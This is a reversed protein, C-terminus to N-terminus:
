AAGEGGRKRKFRASGKRARIRPRLRATQLLLSTGARDAAAEEGLLEAAALVHMVTYLVSVSVRAPLCAHLCAPVCVYVCECPCVFVCVCLCLCECVSVCVCECVRANWMPM